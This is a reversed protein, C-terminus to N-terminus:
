PCNMLSHTTEMDKFKPLRPGNGLWVEAEYRSELSDIGSTKIREREYISPLTRLYNSTAWFFTGAFYHQSHDHGMGTLWHAGVAEYEAELEKICEKWRLVCTRAMCRRWRTGLRGYDSNPDHTCSKAHHYFVYWDPHTKVFKEIEVITLNEAKSQLGHMVLKAESPIILNAIQKSTEDGNIGVIFESAAALLGSIYLQDMQERIINIANPLVEPPDGLEILGHYFIAIKRM